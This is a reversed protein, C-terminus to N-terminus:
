FVQCAGDKIYTAEILGVIILGVREFVLDRNLTETNNVGTQTMRVRVKKKIRLHKGFQGAQESLDEIDVEATRQKTRPWDGKVNRWM